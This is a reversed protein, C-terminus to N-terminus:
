VNSEASTVSRPTMPRRDPLGVRWPSAAGISSHAAPRSMGTSPRSPSPSVASPPSVNQSRGSTNQM